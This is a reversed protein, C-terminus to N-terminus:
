TANELLALGVVLLLVVLVLAVILVVDRASRRDDM